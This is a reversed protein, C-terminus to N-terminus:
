KWRTGEMSSITRRTTATGRDQFSSDRETRVTFNAFLTVKVNEGLADDMLLGVIINAGESIAGYISRSADDFDDMTMNTSGTVLALVGDAGAIDINQRALGRLANEGAATGKGAGGAMGLGMFSDGGGSLVAKVDAFDVCILSHEVILTTLQHVAHRALYDLLAENGFTTPISEDWPVICTRNLHILSDFAGPNRVTVGAAPTIGLTVVGERRAAEACFRAYEHDAGGDFSSVIFVLDTGVMLPQLVAGVEEATVPHSALDGGVAVQGSVEAVDEVAGFFDVGRVRGAMRGVARAGVRGASFVKIVALYDEYMTM